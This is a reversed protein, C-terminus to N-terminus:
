IPDSKAPLLHLFELSSEFEPKKLIRKWHGRLDNATTVEAGVNGIVSRYTKGDSSSLVAAGIKTDYLVAGGVLRTGNECTADLRIKTLSTGNKLEIGANKWEGICKGLEGLETQVHGACPTTRSASIKGVYVNDALGTPEARTTLASLNLILSPSAFRAHEDAIRNQYVRAVQNQTKVPLGSVVNNGIALIRCESATRKACEQLALAIAHPLSCHGFRYYNGGKTISVALVKGDPKRLYDKYQGSASLQPLAKGDVEVPINLVPQRAGCSSVAVAM